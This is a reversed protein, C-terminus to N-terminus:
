MLMMRCVTAGPFGIGHDCRGEAPRVTKLWMGKRNTKTNQKNRVSKIRWNEVLMKNAETGHTSCKWGMKERLKYGGCYVKEESDLKRRKRRLEERVPRAFM